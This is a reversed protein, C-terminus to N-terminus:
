SLFNTLLASSKEPGRMITEPVDRLGGHVTACLGIRRLGKVRAIICIVVRLLPQVRFPAIWDFDAEFGLRIFVKAILRKLNL